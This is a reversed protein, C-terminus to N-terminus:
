YRQFLIGALSPLWEITGHGVLLPANQGQERALLGEDRTIIAHYELCPLMICMEFLGGEEWLNGYLKVDLFCVLM